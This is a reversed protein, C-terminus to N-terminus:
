FGTGYRVETGVLKSLPKPEALESFNPLEALRKEFIAFKEAFGAAYPGKGEAKMFDRLTAIEIRAGQRSCVALAARLGEYDNWAAFKLLRDCVTDIPALVRVIEGNANRVVDHSEILKDGILVPGRPFELTYPTL